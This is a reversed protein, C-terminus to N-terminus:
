TLMGPYGTGINAKEDWTGHGAYFILVNDMPTVKGALDDLAMVIDDRRANKLLILNEESFNYRSVLVERIKEADKVPNDLDPLNPDDYKDVGIILGYYTAEKKIRDLLTAVPPVFEVNLERESRNEKMDSAVLSYRNIGEVLAVKGTFLGMENVEMLEDGLMVYKIGSKDTVEGIIRLEEEGTQINGQELSIPSLIKIVPPETDPLNNFRIGVYESEVKQGASEMTCLGPIALIFLLRFISGITKM